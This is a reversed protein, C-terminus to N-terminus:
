EAPVSAPAVQPALHRFRSYVAGARELLLRYDELALQNRLTEKVTDRHMEKVSRQARPNRLKKMNDATYEFPVYEKKFRRNVERVVRDLHRTTLDFTSVVFGDTYPTLKEYFKVYHRLGQTLSIYPWRSSLSVIADFPERITVVTPIGRKVAKIIQAPSHLHNATLVPRQQSIQFAAAAFSNGSGPFGDIVVQTSRGVRSERIDLADGLQCKTWWVLCHYFPTLVPERSVVMRLDFRAGRIRNRIRDM